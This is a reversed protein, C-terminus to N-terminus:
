RIMRVDLKNWPMQLGKKGAVELTIIRDMKFNKILKLAFWRHVAGDFATMVLTSNLEISACLKTM